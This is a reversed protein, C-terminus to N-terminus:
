FNVYKQGFEKPKIKQIHTKETLRNINSGYNLVKLYNWTHQITLSQFCRKILAFLEFYENPLSIKFKKLITIEIENIKNWISYFELQQWWPENIHFIISPLGNIQANCQWNLSTMNFAGYCQFFCVSGLNKNQIKTLCHAYIKLYYNLFFFCFSLSQHDCSGVEKVTWSQKM